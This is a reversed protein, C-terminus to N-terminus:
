QAGEFFLPANPSLVQLSTSSPHAADSRGLQSSLLNTGWPSSLSASSPAIAAALATALSSFINNPPALLPSPKRPTAMATIPEASLPPASTLDLAAPSSSPAASLQTLEIVEESVPRSVTLLPDLQVATWVSIERPRMAEESDDSDM